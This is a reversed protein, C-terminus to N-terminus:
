GPWKSCVVLLGEQVMEQIKEIRLHQLLESVRRPHVCIDFASRMRESVEYTAPWAPDDLTIRNPYRPNQVKRAACMVATTYDLLPPDQSVYRAVSPRYYSWPQDTQPLRDKWMHRVPMRASVSCQRAGRYRAIALDIAQRLKRAFAQFSYNRRAHRVCERSMAKLRDSDSLLSILASYGRCFDTRIGGNTVWTPMLVGTVGDEITDKLGGYAAGIVPTGSAFAEIVVYGFNEDISNTPHILVDMAAYCVSLEQDSGV